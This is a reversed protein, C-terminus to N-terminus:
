PKRAFIGLMPPPFFFTAPDAEAWAARLEEAEAPTMLGGEILKPVFVATFQSVWAWTLSGPRGVRNIPDSGSRLRGAGM